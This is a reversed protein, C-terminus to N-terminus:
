SPESEGIEERTSPRARGPRQNWARPDFVRYVAPTAKLAELGHWRVLIVNFTLWMAFAVLPTSLVLAILWGNM